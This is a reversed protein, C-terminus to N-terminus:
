GYAGGPSNTRIIMRFTRSCRGKTLRGHRVRPGRRSADLEVSRRDDHGAAECEDGSRQDHSSLRRRERCDHGDARHERGPM